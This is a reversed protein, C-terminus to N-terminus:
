PIGRSGVESDSQLPLPLSTAGIHVQISSVWQCEASLIEHNWDVRVAQKGANSDNSEIPIAIEIRWNLAAIVAYRQRLRERASVCDIRIANELRAECQLIRVRAPSPNQIALAGPCVQEDASRRTANHGPGQRSYM